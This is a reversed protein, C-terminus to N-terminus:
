RRKERTRFDIIEASHDELEEEGWIHDKESCMQEDCTGGNRISYLCTECRGYTRVGQSDDQGGRDFGYDDPCEHEGCDGGNSIYHICLDCSKRIDTDQQWRRSDEHGQRTM